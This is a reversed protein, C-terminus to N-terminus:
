KQKRERQNDEFVKDFMPDHVSALVSGITGPSTKPFFKYMLNMLKADVGIVSRRKRKQIKRVIKIAMKEPKMSISKVLKSLNQQERFLDTDVYGPFIIGVFFDKKHEVRISEIFNKIASKSSCYLAEGVVPCLASSSSISFFAGHNKKLDECFLKYAYVQSFFNTEFVKKATEVSQTEFREFAPMIGANCIVIDTKFGKKDLEDKFSSFKEFSSVDTQLFDYTGKAHKMKEKSSMKEHHKEIEDDILKKSRELKELNRGCGFVNCFYKTSLLKAIEFGIGSSTGTILVNKHLIWKKTM